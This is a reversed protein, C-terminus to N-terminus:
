KRRFLSSSMLVCYCLMASFMLVTSLLPYLNGMSSQSMPITFFPHLLYIYLSNKGIWELCSWHDSFTFRQVLNVAYVCSAVNTILVLAHLLYSDPMLWNATGAVVMFSIIAPLGSIPAILIRSIRDQSRVTLAVFFYVAYLYVRRDGMAWVFRGPLIGLLTESSVCLAVALSAAILATRLQESRAFVFAISVLMLLAPIYWLHFSPYLFLYGLARFTEKPSQLTASNWVFCVNFTLSTVLWAVAVPLYRKVLTYISRSHLRKLDIVYGSVFLFAPMHFSYIWARLLNDRIDENEMSHGLLVLVMLLGKLIDLGKSRDDSM